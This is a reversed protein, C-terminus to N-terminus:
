DEDLKVGCELKYITVQSSGKLMTAIYLENNATFQLYERRASDEWYLEKWALGFKSFIAEQLYGKM